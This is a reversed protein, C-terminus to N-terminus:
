NKARRHSFSLGIRAFGFLPFLRATSFGISVRLFVKRQKFSIYEEWINSYDLQKGHFTINGQPSVNLLICNLEM